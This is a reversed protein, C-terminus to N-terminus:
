FSKIWPVLSELMPEFASGHGEGEIPIFELQRAGGAVFRDYTKQSNSFPVVEDATGHYLRTPSQPVWDYFSNAQLAQKLALEKEDDQLAAFFTPNFLAKPDRTLERNIASGSKSGDFLSPMKSAYPERFFDSLPRNWQNTNNYAQLVYALYAPYAYAEGSKVLGLMEVMDYGGAGAASATVKLGHAPNTEIEKQASLTVYGGESYGVLFLKDSVPVEEEAYLTKAAKIMDVVALAAHKQDYYLHLIDKSEGFGIYDPILLAYGAAAFLEFGSLGEFNSPADRHAFNTGHQVSVVPVPAATHQPLCVLGSAKIERGLYTTNYVLKYVSIGYKVEGGYTGYGQSAVLQQLLERPVSLLLESSVYLDEGAPAEVVIPAAAAAEKECSTHSLLTSLLLTYIFFRKIM